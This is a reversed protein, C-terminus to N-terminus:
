PRHDTAEGPEVQEDDPVPEAGDDDEHEAAHQHEAGIVEHARHQDAAGRSQGKQPDQEADEAPQLRHPKKAQKEARRYHGREDCQPAFPGVRLRRGGVDRARRRRARGGACRGLADALRSAWTGLSPRRKSQACSSSRWSATSESRVGSKGTEQCRMGVRAIGAREPLWTPPLMLYTQSADSPLVHNRISFSASATASDSVMRWATSFYKRLSCSLAACLKRGTDFTEKSCSIPSFACMRRSIGNNRVSRSPSPLGSAVAISGGPPRSSRLKRGIM